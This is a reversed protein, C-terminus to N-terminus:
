TGIGILRSASRINMAALTHMARQQAARAQRVTRRPLARPTIDDEAAAGAAGATTTELFEMLASYQIRWHGGAKTAALRVITRTGRARVIVGDRIWRIITEPVIPGGPVAKGAATPSLWQSQPAARIM